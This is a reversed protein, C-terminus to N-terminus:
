DRAFLELLAVTRERNGASSALIALAERLREIKRAGSEDSPRGNGGGAADRAAAADYRDLHAALELLMHRSELFYTEAVQAATLMTRRQRHSSPLSRSSEKM